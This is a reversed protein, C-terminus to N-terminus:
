RKRAALIARVLEEPVDAPVPQVDPPAWAGKALVLTDRYTNLYVVCSPCHALHDDFADCVEPELEGTLYDDLFQAFERCTVTTSV